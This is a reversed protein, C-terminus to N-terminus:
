NCWLRLIQAQSILNTRFLFHQIGGPQALCTGKLYNAGFVPQELKVGRLCHFPMAFSMLGDRQDKSVFIVRHSTLYLPGKKKGKFAPANAPAHEFELNVEKTYVLIRFFLLM